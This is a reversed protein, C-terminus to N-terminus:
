PTGGFDVINKCAAESKEKCAKRLLELGKVEDKAVGRGAYYAVGLNRCGAPEGGDCAKKYLEVAIGDNKPLGAGNYYVSGLRNCSSAQGRDCASRFITIARSVDKPGGVGDRYAVGLEDCGDPDGGDCSRQFFEFARTDDKPVGEARKYALALNTCARPNGADCARRWLGAARGLDRTVTTGDYYFVGLNSCGHAVGRDCAMAYLDRARAKDVAVGEGREYTVGLNTCGVPEGVECAKKYLAASRVQDPKGLKGSDYLLGLRVCSGGHGRDCQATCDALDGNACLHVPEADRKTCKGGSLVLGAPCTIEEPAPSRAAPPAGPADLAALEIRYVAECGEPPRQDGAKGARCADISGKTTRQVRSSLSGARASGGFISAVTRVEAQSGAEMTFAGVVAGRIFHTAGKCEGTLDGPAAHIRTTRQRGVMILALDLAAGKSLEGGIQAGLLLGTKPLNAGLEDASKIQIVQEDRTVGLYGYRGELHCDPLVRITKCDYAVVPLGSAMEAEVGARQDQRWDVILPAAGDGSGGCTEGAAEAGTPVGPRLAEAAQGSGCGVVVLSLGVVIKRSIM